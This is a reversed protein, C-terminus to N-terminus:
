GKAGGSSAAALEVDRLFGAVSARDKIEQARRLLPLAERYRRQEVLVQAHRVKADAAFEEVGAAQEFCHIAAESEGSASRLRGLRILADGDRPDLEIMKRLIEGREKDDVAIRARLNLLDRQDKTSLQDGQVEGIADALTRAASSAGHGGLFKASRILRSPNASPDRKLARLYAGVALDYLKETAYIDGLNNLSAATSGGLSDVIEFNEAAKMPQKLRAYAEGQALWLDARNPEAALLRGLATVAEQFRGQKFFSEALGMKWQPKGPELLSAMRFASEAATDNQLRSHSVGLLGYSLGDAAGLEILRTFASVANQDDDQLFRIQALNSWARRFKPHKQVAISYADAAQDLQERQFYINALTFDFTASATPSRYEQLLQMAEDVKGDGINQLVELMQEGEETDLKPEVDTDAMYSEVLRRKFTPDAVIEGVSAMLVESSTAKEEPKADRTEGGETSIVASAGEATAPGRGVLAAPVARSEPTGVSEDEAVSVCGCLGLGLLTAISSRVM